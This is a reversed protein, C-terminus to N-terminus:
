CFFSVKTKSSSMHLQNYMRHKRLSERENARHGQFDLLTQAFDGVDVLFVDFVGPLVNYWM